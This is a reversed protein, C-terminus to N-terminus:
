PLGRVEDNKVEAFPKDVMYRAEAKWERAQRPPPPHFAILPVHANMKEVALDRLTKEM